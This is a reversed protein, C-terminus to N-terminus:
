GATTPTTTPNHMRWIRIMQQNWSLLAYLTVAVFILGVAILKIATRDRRHALQYLGAILFCVGLTALLGLFDM